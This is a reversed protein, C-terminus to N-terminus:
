QHYVRPGLIAQGIRIMTAGEEIACEFDNSTGMSLHILNQEPYLDQLISRIQYLKKFFKGSVELNIDLPPMTMLGMWKLNSCKNILDFEAKNSSIDKIDTICWGNKTIEGAVNIELLIPLVKNAKVLQDNLKIALPLSDLSHMFHFYKVVYNIKRSQCHGIMHWEIPDTLKLLGIKEATEEPYNEGFIRVGAQIAAEIVAPPKTKSVVVTQIDKPDRGVKECTKEVRIMIEDFRYKIDRALDDV